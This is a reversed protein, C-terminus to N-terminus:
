YVTFSVAGGGRLPTFKFKKRKSYPPPHIVDVCQEDSVNRRFLDTKAATQRHTQKGRSIVFSSMCFTNWSSDQFDM